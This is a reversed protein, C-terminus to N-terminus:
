ILEKIQGKVTLSIAAIREKFQFWIKRLLITPTDSHGPDTIYLMIKGDVGGVLIDNHGDNNWDSVFLRSRPTGAKDPYKIPEGSKLFLKEAKEFVPANKEGVNQLCYVHGEIEGVLIDMLGDRNWDKIRPATRSGLNLIKGGAELLEPSNFVPRSDTGTNIYIKINGDMSGVLLDKKGDDNWDAAVPATRRGANLINGSAYIFEGATMVPTNGSATNIYIQINGETNGILLDHKGDSNWDV